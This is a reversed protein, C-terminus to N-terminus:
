SQSPMKVPEASSLKSVWQYLRMMHEVRLNFYPVFLLVSFLATALGASLIESHPNRLDSLLIWLGFSILLIALVVSPWLLSRIFKSLILPQEIETWVSPNSKARLAAEVYVGEGSYGQPFLAKVAQQRCRSLDAGAPFLHYPRTQRDIWLGRAGYRPDFLLSDWFNGAYYGILALLTGFIVAVVLRISTVLQAVAVLRSLTFYTLAISPITIAVLGPVGRLSNWLGLRDLTKEILYYM